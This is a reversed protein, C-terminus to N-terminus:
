HFNLIADMFNKTKIEKSSDAALTKALENLEEEDDKANQDVERKIKRCFIMLSAKIPIIKSMLSTFLPTPM